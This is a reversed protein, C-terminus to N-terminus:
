KLIRLCLNANVCSILFIIYFPIFWFFWGPAPNTTILLSLLVIGSGIFLGSESITSSACLRFLVLGVLILGFYINLNSEIAFRIGFVRLAEPSGLTTYGLNGASMLPLSGILFVVLFVGLWVLIKKTADVAFYRNWLFAFLVPIVIVIQFKCLCGLGFLLASLALKQRLFTSISFILFCISAVDTQGLVYSIYIVMPNLWYLLLIKLKWQPFVQFLGFLMVLGYIMNPLQFFLSAIVTPQLAVEGFLQYGVYKFTFFSLFMVSGYPFYEPPLNSWPNSWPNLVAQNLFENFYRLFYSSQFNITTVFIRIILGVILFFWFQNKKDKLVKM